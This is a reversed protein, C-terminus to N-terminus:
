EDQGAWMVVSDTARTLHKSCEENPALVIMFAPTILQLWSTGKYSTLITLGPCYPTGRDAIGTRKYRLASRPLAGTVTPRLALSVSVVLSSVGCMGKACMQVDTKPAGSAAGHGLTNALIRRVKEANVVKSSSPQKRVVAM